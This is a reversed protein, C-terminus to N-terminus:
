CMVFYIVGLSLAISIHNHAVRLEDLFILLHKQGSHYLNTMVIQYTFVLSASERTWDMDLCM